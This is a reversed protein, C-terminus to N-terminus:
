DLYHDLVDDCKTKESEYRERLDNVRKSVEPLESRLEGRHAAWAQLDVSAPGGDSRPFCPHNPPLNRCYLVRERDKQLSLVSEILKLRREADKLELTEPQADLKEIAM